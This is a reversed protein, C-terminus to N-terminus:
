GDLVVRRLPDFGAIQRVLEQSQEDLSLHRSDPTGLVHRVGKIFLQAIWYEAEGPRRTKFVELREVGLAILDPLLPELFHRFEEPVSLSSGCLLEGPKGDADFSM